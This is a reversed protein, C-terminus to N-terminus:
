PMTYHVPAAPGLPIDLAIWGITLALGVALLGISYPIM